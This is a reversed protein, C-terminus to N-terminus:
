MSGTSPPSLQVTFRSSSSSGVDHAIYGHIKRSVCRQLLQNSHVAGLQDGGAVGVRNVQVIVAHRPLQAIHLHHVGQEALPPANVPRGTGAVAHGHQFAPEALHQVVVPHVAHAKRQEAGGGCGDALQGVVAGAQGALRGGGGLGSLVVERAQRLEPADFDGGFLLAVAAMLDIGDFEDVVDVQDPVARM